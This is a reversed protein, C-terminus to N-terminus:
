YQQAESNGIPKEALRNLVSQWNSLVPASIIKPQVEFFIRTSLKGGRVAFSPKSM